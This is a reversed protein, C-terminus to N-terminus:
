SIMIFYEVAENLSYCVDDLSSFADDLHEVNQEMEEGQDGYKFSEPLNDYAEDEDMKVSEIDDRLIEALSLLDDVRKSLKKVEKRRQNNM